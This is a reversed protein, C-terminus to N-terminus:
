HSPQQDLSPLCDTFRHQHSVFIRSRWPVFLRCPRRRRDNFSAAELAEISDGRPQRSDLMVRIKFNQAAGPSPHKVDIRQRSGDGKRGLDAIEIAEMDAKSFLQRPLPCTKNARKSGSRVRPWSLHLAANMILASGPASCDRGEVTDPVNNSLRMPASRMSAFTGRAAQNVFSRRGTAERDCSKQPM